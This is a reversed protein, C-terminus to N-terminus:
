ILFSSDKAVSGQPRVADSAGEALAALSSSDLRTTWEPGVQRGVRLPIRRLEGRAPSAVQDAMGRLRRRSAWAGTVLALETM